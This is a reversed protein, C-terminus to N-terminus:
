SVQRREGSLKGQQKEIKNWIYTFVGSVNNNYQNCSIERQSFFLLLTYESLHSQNKITSHFKKKKLFHRVSVTKITKLWYFHYFCSRAYPGWIRKTDDRNLVFRMKVILVTWNSSSQLPLTWCHRLFSQTVTHCERYISNWVAFLMFFAWITTVPSVYPNGLKVWFWINWVAEPTTLNNRPESERCFFTRGGGGPDSKGHSLSGIQDIRFSSERFSRSRCWKFRGSEGGM